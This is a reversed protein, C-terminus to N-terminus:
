RRFNVVATPDGAGEAYDFTVTDGNAITKTVNNYTVKVEVAYYDSTTSTVITVRVTDGSVSTAARVVSAGNVSSVNTGNVQITVTPDGVSGANSSGGNNNETTGYGHYDDVLVVEAYGDKNIVPVYVYSNRSIDSLSGEVYDGSKADIVFVQTNTDTMINNKYVNNLSAVNGSQKVERVEVGKDAFSILGSNYGIVQKALDKLNHDNGYAYIPKIKEGSLTYVIFYDAKAGATTTMNLEYVTDDGVM